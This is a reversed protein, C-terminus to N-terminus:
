SSPNANSNIVKSAPAREQIEIYASPFWGAKGNCEGESWGNAAVQQNVYFLQFPHSYIGDRMLITITRHKISKM